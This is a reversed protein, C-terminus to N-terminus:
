KSIGAGNGVMKNDLALQEVEKFERELVNVESRIFIVTSYKKICLQCLLISFM